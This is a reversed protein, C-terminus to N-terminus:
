GDFGGTRLIEKSQDFSLSLPNIANQQVSLAVKITDTTENKVILTM